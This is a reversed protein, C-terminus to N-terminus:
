TTGSWSAVIRAVHPDETQFPALGTGEVREVITGGAAQIGRVVDDPDVFTRNKRSSTAAAATRTRGSSSSCTAGAGCHCPRWGCCTPVAPTTSRTCSSGATSTSRSRTELEAAHGLALVDRLDALNLPRRDLM